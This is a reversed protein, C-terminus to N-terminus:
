FRKKAAERAEAKKRELELLAQEQRDETIKDFCALTDTKRDGTFKVVTHLKKDGIKM